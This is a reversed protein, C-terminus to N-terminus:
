GGLNVVIESMDMNELEMNESELNNLELISLDPAFEIIKDYEMKLLDYKYNTIIKRRNKVQEEQSSWKLNGPEYNKDNDIRDLTYGDPKEGMQELYEIMEPLQEWTWFCKIGRFGYNKYNHSKENYCRHFIQYCMKYYKHNSLNHTKGGAGKKRSIEELYCDCGKYNNIKIQYYDINQPESLPCNLCQVLCRPEITKGDKCRSPYFDIIKWRGYEKGIETKRTTKILKFNPDPYAEAYHYTCFGSNMYQKRGCEEITCIKKPPTEPSGYKRFKSYHNFCYGLAYHRNDCNEVSCTKV